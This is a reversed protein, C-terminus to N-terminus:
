KSALCVAATLVADESNHEGAFPLATIGGEFVNVTNLMYEIAEKLSFTKSLCLFHNTAGSYEGALTRLRFGFVPQLSSV